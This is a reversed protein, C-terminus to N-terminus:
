RMGITALAQDVWARDFVAKYIPNYVKLKGDQKVVLGSLLLEMQEPSDDAAVEGQQLIQQYLRLMQSTRQGSNLLRDRITRLHGLEDQAQWIEIVRSKVLNEVWEAEGGAPISAESARVLQCLKQTLFPQGGTWTLVERLVTLPNDVKEELGQALPMAEYLQFGHLEILRGINFPTRTKDRILDAPTAVGLVAFTLRNYEPKDVRQNYCARILAFFDDAPFNLGLISDVEDLFIVINQPISRLLVKEIFESLRQVPPLLERDRLWTRLNVKDLLNFANALEYVIDNYWQELTVNLSGFMTLDIAACAIGEAQLRQMM